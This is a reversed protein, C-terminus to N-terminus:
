DKLQVKPIKMQTYTVTSKVEQQNDKKEQFGKPKLKRKREQVILRKALAKQIVVIQLIQYFLRLLLAM